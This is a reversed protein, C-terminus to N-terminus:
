HNDQKWLDILLFTFVILFPRGQQTRQEIGVKHCSTVQAPDEQEQTEVESFIVKLLFFKPNEKENM